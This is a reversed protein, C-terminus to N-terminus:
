SGRAIGKTRGEGQKGGEGAEEPRSTGITATLDKSGQLEKLVPEHCSM